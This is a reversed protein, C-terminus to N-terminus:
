CTRRIHARRLRLIWVLLFVFVVENLATLLHWPTRLGDSWHVGMFIYLHPKIRIDLWPWLLKLGRGYCFFDMLLHLGYCLFAIWFCLRPNERFFAYFVSGGAATALALALLSHTGQNHFRGLDGALIGIVADIDPADVAKMGVVHYGADVHLNEGTVGSGLDSLLYMGSNGVDHISVNKRLPANNANWRLLSGFEGIGAAALTKIPGASVANVRIGDRGLDEALYKVTMELAAKAVGMLNYNPIYKEGGYYSLTLISSNNSMVSKLERALEILSYVSIEMSINFAEKPIDTYGEENFAIRILTNKYVKMELGNKRIESRLEMMDGSTIGEFKTLIVASAKAIKERIEQVKKVKEPRPSKGTIV